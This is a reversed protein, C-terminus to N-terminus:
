PCAISVARELPDNPSSSILCTMRMTTSPM